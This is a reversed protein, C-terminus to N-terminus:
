YNQTVIMKHQPNYTGNSCSGCSRDRKPKRHLPSKKGCTPCTLTYKSQVALLEASGANFESEANYCRAGNCGIALAQRQWVRDHGHQPGVLAHAIEHLLTDEVKDDKMHPLLYKSLGITKSRFKCVGARNRATDFEFRWGDYTLGHEKILSIALTKAELITMQKHTKNM